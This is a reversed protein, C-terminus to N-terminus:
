RPPQTRVSAGQDKGIAHEIHQMAAMDSVQGFRPREACAENDCQIRIQGDLPQAFARIARDIREFVAQRHHRPQFAHAEHGPEFFVCRKDRMRIQRGSTNTFPPSQGTCSITPAGCTISHPPDTFDIGNWNSREVVANNDRM